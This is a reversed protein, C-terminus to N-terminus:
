LTPLYQTAMAPDAEVARRSGGVSGSGPVNVVVISGGLAEELHPQLTRM